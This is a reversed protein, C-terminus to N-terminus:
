ISGSRKRKKSDTEMHAKGLVEIEYSNFDWKQQACRKTKVAHCCPCLLQLNSLENTGGHKVEIIHDIQFGSEDFFGNRHSWLPCYYNLCGPAQASPNNACQKRCLLEKKVAAPITQRNNM